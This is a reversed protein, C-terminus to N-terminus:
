GGLATIRAKSLSAIADIVARFAADGAVPEGVTPAFTAAAVVAATLPTASLASAGQDFTDPM